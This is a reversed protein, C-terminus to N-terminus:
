SLAQVLIGAYERERRGEHGVGIKVNSEYVTILKSLKSLNSLNKHIKTFNERVARIRYVLFNANETSFTDFTDNDTLSQRM